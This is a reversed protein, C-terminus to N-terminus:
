RKVGKQPDILDGLFGAGLMQLGSKVVSAVGAGAADAEDGTSKPLYVCKSGNVIQRWPFSKKSRCTYEKKAPTSDLLQVLPVANYLWEGANICDNTNTCGKYFTPTGKCFEGKNANCETDVTCSAGHLTLKGDAGMSTCKGNTQPLHGNSLCASQNSCLQSLAAEGVAACVGKDDKTTQWACTTAAACADQTALSSCLADDSGRSVGVVRFSLKNQPKPPATVCINLHCIVGKLYRTKETLRIFIKPIGLVRTPVLFNKMREMIIQIPISSLLTLQALNVIQSM